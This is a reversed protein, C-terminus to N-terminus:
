PTFSGRLSCLASPSRGESANRPLSPVDSWRLNWSDISPSSPGTWGLQQPTPPVFRGTRGTVSIGGRTLTIIAFLPVQYPAVFALNPYQEHLGRSYHLASYPQGMWLNSISNVTYYLVDEVCRLDDIHLHGNLCLRVNGPRSNAKRLIERFTEANKIGRKGGYLPQHSCIVVPEDGSALERELWDLQDGSLYPLDKTGFYVGRDYDRLVGNEDRYFSSDLAIFHWGNVHWAYHSRSIGYADMVTRKTCFDMEHNGLVHYVPKEFRNFQRLVDLQPERPREMALRLNVPLDEPPCLSQFTRVPYLFDGLSLIFDVDAARAAELFANVRQAGDHMIDMHLDAMVAFRVPQEM